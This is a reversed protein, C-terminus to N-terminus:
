IGYDLNLYDLWDPVDYNFGPGGLVIKADIIQRVVDTIQKVRPRLDPHRTGLPAQPDLIDGLFWESRSGLLRRNFDWAYRPFSLKLTAPLCASMSKSKM